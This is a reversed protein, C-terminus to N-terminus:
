SINVFVCMYMFVIRIDYVCVRTRDVLPDPLLSVGITILVSQAWIKTELPWNGSLFLIFLFSVFCPEKSFYSCGPSPCSSFSLLRLRAYRATCSLSSSILSHWFLCVFFCLFWTSPVGGPWMQKYNSFFLLGSFSVSSHTWVSIFLHIVISWNLIIIFLHIFPFYSSSCPM